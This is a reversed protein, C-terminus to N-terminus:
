YTIVAGEIDLVRQLVYKAVPKRTGIEAHDKVNDFANLFEEGPEGERVVFIEKPYDPIQKKSMPHGKRFQDPSAYPAIRRVLGAYGPKGSM